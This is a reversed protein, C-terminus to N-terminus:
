GAMTIVYLEISTMAETHNSYLQDEDAFSAISVEDM